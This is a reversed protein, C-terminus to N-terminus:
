FTRVAMIEHSTKVVPPGSKRKGESFVFTITSRMSKKLLRFMRIAKQSIIRPM